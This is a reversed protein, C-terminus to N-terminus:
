FSKKKFGGLHVSEKVYWVGQIYPDLYRLGLEGNIGVYYKAEYVFRPALLPLPLFPILYILNGGIKKRIQSESNIKAAM